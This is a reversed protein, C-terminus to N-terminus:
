NSRKILYYKVVNKINQIVLEKVWGFGPNFWRHPHTNIMIKNPLQASEVLQILHKTSKVQIDFGSNVKDRVSINKKNWRRGTDTLYFVENYDIDFYPEGVIGLDKYNYKKWIDRNDFTSRPSGHMCITKVPYLKRLQELNECFLKYAEDIREEDSKFKLNNMKFKENVTDMTEYHYGIEHGLDSIEKIIDPKLTQPITRFYYTAKIVMDYELKAMKLANQPMRDVDHRLILTPSNPLQHTSSNILPSSPSNLLIFQNFSFIHYDKDLFTQLLKKYMKLTFDMPHPTSLNLLQYTSSHLLKLSSSNPNTKLKPTIYLM